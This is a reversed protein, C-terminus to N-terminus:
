VSDGESARRALHNARAKARRALRSAMMPGKEEWPTLESVENALTLATPPKKSLNKLPLPHLM